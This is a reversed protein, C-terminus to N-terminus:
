GANEARDLRDLRDLKEEVADRIWEQMTKDELAAAAKVRRKTDEPIVIWTPRDTDSKTRPM